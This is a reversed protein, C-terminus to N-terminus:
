LQLGLVSDFEPDDAFRQLLDGSFGLGALVAFISPKESSIFDIERQTITAVTDVAQQVDYGAGGVYTVRMMVQEKLLEELLTELEEQTKAHRLSEPLSVTGPAPLGDEGWLITKGKFFESRELARILRVVSSSNLLAADIIAM